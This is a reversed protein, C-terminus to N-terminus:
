YFIRPRSKRVLTCSEEPVPFPKGRKAQPFYAALSLATKAYLRRKRYAPVLLPNNNSILESYTLDVQEMKSKDNDYYWNMKLVKNSIARTYEDAIEETQMSLLMKAQTIFQAQLELDSKRSTLLLVRAQSAAMGM